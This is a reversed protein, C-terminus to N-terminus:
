IYIEARDNEWSYLSLESVCGLDQGEGAGGRKSKRSSLTCLKVGKETRKGDELYSQYFRM